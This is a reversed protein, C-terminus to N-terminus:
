RLYAPVEVDEVVVTARDATAVAALVFRPRREADGDVALGRLILGDGDPVPIGQLLNTDRRVAQDLM